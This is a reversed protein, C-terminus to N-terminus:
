ATPALAAAVRQAEEIVAKGLPSDAPLDPGLLASPPETLRAVVAARAEEPLARLAAGLALRTVMGYAEQQMQQRRITMLVDTIDQLTQRLDETKVSPKFAM